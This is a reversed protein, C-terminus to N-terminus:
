NAGRQAQAWFSDSYESRQQPSAYRLSPASRDYCRTGRHRDATQEVGRAPARCQLAVLEYLSKHRQSTHPTFTKSLIANDSARASDSLQYASISLRCTYFPSVSFTDEFPSRLETRPAQPRVPSPRRQTSLDLKTLHHLLVSGPSPSRPQRTTRYLNPSTSSVSSSLFNYLTLLDSTTSANCPQM